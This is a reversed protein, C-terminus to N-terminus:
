NRKKSNSNAIDSMFRVDVQCVGSMSRVDVQCVGSMSRVYVQCLGSMSRVDVQCVGSMSRVYVQCPGRDFNGFPINVCVTLRVSPRVARAGVISANKELDVLFASFIISRFNSYKQEFKSM